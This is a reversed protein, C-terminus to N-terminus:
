PTTGRLGLSNSGVAKAVPEIANDLSGGLISSVTTGPADLNKVYRYKRRLFREQEDETAKLVIACNHGFFIGSIWEDIEDGFVSRYPRNKPSFENNAVDVFAKFKTLMSDPHDKGYATKHGYTDGQRWYNMETDEVIYVGGPKLGHVFMYRFSIDQHAPHHSGDDIIFNLKGELGKDSLMKAMQERSSQDINGIMKPYAEDDGDKEIAWVEGQPFYQVWMDYSKGQLFGIELMKIPKDRWRELFLPYYREYGHHLM